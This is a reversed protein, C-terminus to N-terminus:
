MDIPEIRTLYENSWDKSPVNESDYVALERQYEVVIGHRIFQGPAPSAKRPVTSPVIPLLKPEERRSWGERM